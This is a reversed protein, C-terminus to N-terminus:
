AGSAQSDGYSGSSVRMLWGVACLCMLAVVVWSDVLWAAFATGPIGIMCGVILFGVLFANRWSGALAAGAITLITTAAILLIAAPTGDISSTPAMFGVPSFYNYLSVILALGAGVAIIWGGDHRM